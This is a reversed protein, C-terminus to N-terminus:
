EDWFQWQIYKGNIRCYYVMFLSFLFSKEDLENRDLLLTLKLLLREQVIRVDVAMQGAIFLQVDVIFIVSFIKKRQSVESKSIRCRKRWGSERERLFMKKRICSMGELRWTLVTNISWSALSFHLLVSASKLVRAEKIHGM